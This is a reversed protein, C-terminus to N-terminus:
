RTGIALDVGERAHAVAMVAFLLYGTPAPNVFDRGSTIIFLSGVVLSIERWWPYIGRGGAVGKRSCQQSCAPFM